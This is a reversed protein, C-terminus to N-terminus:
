AARCGPVRSLRAPELVGRWKEGLKVQAAIWQQSDDVRWDEKRIREIRSISDAIIAFSPLIASDPHALLVLCSRAGVPSTRLGLLQHVSVLPMVRGEVRALMQGDAGMTMMGAEAGRLAVMARVAASPIAFERGALRVVLYNGAGSRSVADDTDGDAPGHQQERQRSDSM